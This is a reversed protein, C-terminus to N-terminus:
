VVANQIPTATPGSQPVVRQAIETSIEELPRLGDIHHWRSDDLWSRYGALRTELVEVSDPFPENKLKSRRQSEDVPILLLFSHDPRIAVFKLMHWLWWSTVNAQPFNITFDLATDQLYRDCIVHHGIM